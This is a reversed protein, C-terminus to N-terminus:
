AQRHARILSPVLVIATYSLVSGLVPGHAGLHALQISLALNAVAMLSFAIAQFRLGSADTLWMNAPYSVARVFLLAAFAAMLDTGVRVQGHLMWTGLSPGLIVMGAGVVLSGMAFYVTLRTLHGRASSAAQRRQAFLAWLPLAAAALLSTAPAFFQAGASYQAVANADDLHSLVLRDTGYAAVTAATIVTMPVALQAFAIQSTSKHRASRIVLLLLPIGTLRGTVVMSVLGTLLQSFFAVCIFVATSAGMAAAAMVLAVQLVSGAGQMLFAVDNRNVAVLVARGVGLPMTCGYLVAAAAAAVNSEPQAAGGLVRDWLGLLGIVVGALAIVAGAGMLNRAATSVTRRMLTRERSGDRACAEVIAAGAGLDTVPLMAPLTTVLTFFAYGSVGVAGVVSHSMMLNTVATVPLTVARAGVSRTLSSTLHGTGSKGGGPGLTEAAPEAQGCAFADASDLDIPVAKRTLSFPRGVAKM